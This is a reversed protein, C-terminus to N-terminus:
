DSGDQGLESVANQRYVDVGRAVDRTEGLLREALGDGKCVQDNGGGRYAM